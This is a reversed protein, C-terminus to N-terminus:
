CSINGFVNSSTQMKKGKRRKKNKLEQRIIKKASKKKLNRQKRLIQNDKIENNTLTKGLDFKEEIKKSIM